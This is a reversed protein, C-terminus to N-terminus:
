RRQAPSGRLPASRHVEISEAGGIVRDVEHIEVGSACRSRMRAVEPLRSEASGKGHSGEAGGATSLRWHLRVAYRASGASPRGSLPKRLARASTSRNTSRNPPREHGTMALM